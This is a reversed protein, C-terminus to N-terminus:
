IIFLTILIGVYLFPVLSVGDKLGLKKRCMQVVSYICCLLVGYFIAGIIRQGTLYLGMVFSLKVDGAGLQKGSLLYCLFFIIGGTIGGALSRFFLEMGYATDLIFTLGVITVWSFLMLILFRNPVIKAVWDTVALAAMGSILILNLSYESMALEPLRIYAVVCTAFFTICGAMLISKSCIWIKRKPLHLECKENMVSIGGYYGVTVIIASLVASLLKM